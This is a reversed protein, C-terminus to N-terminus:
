DPYHNNCHSLSNPICQICWLTSSLPFLTSAAYRRAARSTSTGAASRDTHPIGSRSSMRTDDRTSGDMTTTAAPTHFRWSMNNLWVNLYYRLLSYALYILQISMQSVSAMSAHRLISIVFINVFWNGMSPPEGHSQQPPLQRYEPQPQGYGQQSAPQSQSQGSPPAQQVTPEM